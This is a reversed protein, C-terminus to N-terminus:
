RPPTTGTPAPKAVVRVTGAAADYTIQQGPPPAPLKPLYGESVLENLERPLRGEEMQFMQIAQRLTVLDVTKDAHQQAKTAAGIYDVPATLPNSGSDKKAQGDGCGALLATLAAVPLLKLTNM